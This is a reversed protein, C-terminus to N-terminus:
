FSASYMVGYTKSGPDMMPAVPIYRGQAKNRKSYGVLTVIIGSLTAALGCASVIAGTKRDDKAAVAYTTGAIATIGGVGTLIFGAFIHKGASAMQREYEQQTLFHPPLPARRDESPRRRMSPVAHAPLPALVALAATLAVLM